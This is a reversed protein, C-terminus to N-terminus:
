KRLSSPLNNMANERLKEALDFKPSEMMEVRKRSEYKKIDKSTMKKWGQKQIKKIEMEILKEFPVKCGMAVYKNAKETAAAIQETTANM